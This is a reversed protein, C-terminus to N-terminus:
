RSSFEAARDSAMYTTHNPHSSNEGEMRTQTKNEFQGHAGLNEEFTLTHELELKKKMIENEVKLVEIGKANKQKMNKLERKMDLTMGIPDVSLEEENHKDNGMMSQTAVM